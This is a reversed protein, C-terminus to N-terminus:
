TGPRSSPAVSASLSLTLAPSGTRITAGIIAPGLEWSLVRLASKRTAAIKLEPTCNMSLSTIKM